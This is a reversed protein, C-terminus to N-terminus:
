KKEEEEHQGFSLQAGVAGASAVHSRRSQSRTKNKSSSNRGLGLEKFRGPQPFGAANQSEGHMSRSKPASIISLGLILLCLIIRKSM